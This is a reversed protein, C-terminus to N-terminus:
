GRAAARIMSLPATSKTLVPETAPPRLTCSAAARRKELDSQLEAALIGRVHARIGIELVRDLVEGVAREEVAALGAARDLADVRVAVDVVAEDITQHLEGAAVPQVIRGIRRGRKPRQDPGGGGLEHAALDGLRHRGTCPAAPDSPRGLSAGTGRVHRRLDQGADIVMRMMVSSVNPGATPTM